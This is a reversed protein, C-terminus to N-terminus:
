HSPQQADGNQNRAKYGLDISISRVTKYAQCTNGRVFVSFPILNLIFVYTDIYIHVSHCQSIYDFICINGYM